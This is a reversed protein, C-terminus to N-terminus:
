KTAPTTEAPSSAPTAETAVSLVINKKEGHGALRLALTVTAGSIEGVLRSTMPEVELTQGPELSLKEPEVVFNGLPSLFDAVLLDARTASNNTFRLHIMVPPNPNAAHRMNSLQQREVRDPMGEPGGGMESDGGQHRGHGGEGGGGGMHFGGGGGHRKREPSPEDGEKAPKEAFGPGHGVTLEATIQGDFFTEKGALPPTHARRHAPGETRYEAPDSSCGTFPLAIMTATLIWGFRLTSGSPITM